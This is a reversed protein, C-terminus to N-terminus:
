TRSYSQWAQWFTYVALIVLLGYFCFQVVRDPLKPLLSTSIRSGVLGGVGLILGIPFVVNGQLAHGITASLTTIVIVGLSTQIAIKITEGLFLIQLPVMIVGGGIGFLGALFGATGGTGLRAIKTFIKITKTHTSALRTALRQRLNGLFVNIILLIGLTTLLMYDPLLNATHVGFQATILAPSGLLIVRQLDLYGRRWNQISGSLSTIFIALSSTAVAQVPMHGLTVLLPVLITGGGIGLLGALLGSFLGSVILFLLNDLM